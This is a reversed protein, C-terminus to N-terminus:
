TPKNYEFSGMLGANQCIFTTETSRCKMEPLAPPVPVTVDKHGLYQKWRAEFVQVAFDYMWLDFPMLEALKKRVVNNKDKHENTNKKAMQVSTGLKASLMEMSRDLDELLGFWTTNLMREIVLKAVLKTELFHKEREKIDSQPIQVWKGVHLGSLWMVGAEGDMWITRTKHMLELDNLYDEMTPGRIKMEETWFFRKAYNFHSIARDIPHRFMTLVNADFGFRKDIYSWDFHCAGCETGVFKRGLDKAVRRMVENFSTGGSKGIHMFVLPQKSEKRAPPFLPLSRIDFEDQKRIIEIFKYNAIIIVVIITFVKFVKRDIM